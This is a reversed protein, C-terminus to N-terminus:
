QGALATPSFDGPEIGEELDTEVDGATGAQDDAAAGLGLVLRRAQKFGAGAEGHDTGSDDRGELFPRPFESEGEKLAGKLGGVEVMNEQHDVRDGAVRVEGAPNVSQRPPAFDQDIGIVLRKKGVKAHDGQHMRAMQAQADAGAISRGGQGAAQALVQFIEEGVFEDDVEVM